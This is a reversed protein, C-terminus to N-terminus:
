CPSLKFMLRAPAVTVRFVEEHRREEDDGRVSISANANSGETAALPRMAAILNVSMHDNYRVFCTCENQRGAM